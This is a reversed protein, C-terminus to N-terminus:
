RRPSKRTAPPPPAPPTNQEPASPWAPRDAPPTAGRTLQPTAAGTQKDSLYQGFRQVQYHEPLVSWTQARSDFLWLGKQRVCSDEEPQDAEPAYFPGATLAIEGDLAFGLPEFVAACSKGMHKRFAQQVLQPDSLTGRSADFFRVLSEGGESAWQFAGQAFLLTHGDPSWDVIGLTNGLAEPSPEVVLVQRFPEDRAAVFLRSTSACAWDSLPKSKTAVAEVETYARYRDGPSILVHSRVLESGIFQGTAEEYCSGLETDSVKLKSPLREVQALTPGCCFFFVLIFHSRPPM